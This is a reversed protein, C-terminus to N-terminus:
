APWSTGATDSLFGGRGAGAIRALEVEVHKISPNRTTNSVQSPETPFVNNQKHLGTTWAQTLCYQLSTFSYLATSTWLEAM